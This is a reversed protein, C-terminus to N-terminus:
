GDELGGYNLTVNGAVALQYDELAQYEPSTLVVRKVGAQQVKSILRTPNIDRGVKSKQWLVWADVADAVDSKIQTASTSDSRAIYYILDVDFSVAEPAQVTVTDCLPVVDDADLAERVLELIEEGPLEGGTLVPRVDVCGPEPSYVAVDIIDQHASKAHYQYAGNPGAVTYKEPALQIRERYNDDSEPDSGGLSQTTNSVGTVYELADVLKNIQGAVFGNGDAGATECTASVDVYTDGAAIEAYDDTAFNIEGDPTARIGAEISVAVDLAAEISFRLTTTAAGAELRETDVLAGLHDLYDGSAFALLNQKASWDILYRQTAIVYALSELFLRIPDGPYLTTEAITEYGTLIEEQVASADYDCFTISPLNDLLSM